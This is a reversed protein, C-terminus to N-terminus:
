NLGNKIALAAYQNITKTTGSKSCCAKIEQPVSMAVFGAKAVELFFSTCIGKKVKM